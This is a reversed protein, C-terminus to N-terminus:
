QSYTPLILDQFSKFIYRTSNVSVIYRLLLRGDVCGCKSAGASWRLILRSRWGSLKEKDCFVRALPWQRALGLFSLRERGRADGISAIAIISSIM